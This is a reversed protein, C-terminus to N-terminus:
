KKANKLKKIVGEKVVEFSEFNKLMCFLGYLLLISIITPLIIRDIDAIWGELNSMVHMEIFLATVRRLTMLLLALTVALWGYNLRNFRYIKYSLYAAIFQIVVQSVGVITAILINM